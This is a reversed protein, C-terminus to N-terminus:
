NSFSDNWKKANVINCGKSFFITLTNINDDFITKKLNKFQKLNFFHKCQQWKLVGDITPNNKPRSIIYDYYIGMSHIYQLDWKGLTRATCLVIIDGNAYDEKLQWYMPLLDDNLINEKTNNEIWHDLDLRGQGDHKARHSSNIITGDLDYIKIEPKLKWIRDIFKTKQM